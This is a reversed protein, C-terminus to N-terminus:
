PASGAFDIDEILRICEEREKNREANDKAAAICADLYEMLENPGFLHEM